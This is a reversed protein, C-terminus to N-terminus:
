VKSFVLSCDCLTLSRGANLPKGQLADAACVLACVGQLCCWVSSCRLVSKPGATFCGAAGAASLSFSVLDWALNSLWFASAPAGALRQLQKSGSESEAVPVLVFSAALVAVASTM